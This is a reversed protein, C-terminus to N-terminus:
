WYAWFFKSSTLHLYFKLEFNYNKINGHRVNQFVILSKKIDRLICHRYFFHVGGFRWVPINRWTENPFFIGVMFIQWNLGGKFWCLLIGRIGNETLLIQSRTTVSNTDFTISYGTLGSRMLTLGFLYLQSYKLVGLFFPNCNQFKSLM